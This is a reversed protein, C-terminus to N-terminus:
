QLVVTAIALDRETQLKITYIGPAYGTLDVSIKNNRTHENRAIVLSGVVNYINLSVHQDGSGNLSITFSGSTPNPYISVASNIGVGSVGQLVFQFLQSWGTCGGTNTAQVRYDGSQTATHNTSTAGAIAVGNFYWQYVPYTGSATLVNGSASIGVVPTDVTVPKCWASSGARSAIDTILHLQQAGATPFSVTDATQPAYNVTGGLAAASLPIRILTSPTSFNISVLNLTDNYWFSSLPQMQPPANLDGFDIATVTNTISSGFHLGVLNGAENIALATTNDCDKLVVIGRPLAFLGGPNGLNTIAPANNLLSPGFDYRLLLDSILDTVLMYWNGNEENLAFYCPKDAGVLNPLNTPTPANSLSNGFDLRTIHATNFSGVFGIWSGDYKKITIQMSYSLSAPFDWSTVTPAGALNTGFAARIIRAGDAIFVYWDSGDKVVDLGEPHDHLAGNLDGLNSVTPTSYPNSGFDLRLLEMNGANTVFGYYHGDDNVIMADAGVAMGPGGSLMPIADPVPQSFNLNGTSWLYTQAVVNTNVPVPAGPCVTDPAIIQANTMGSLILGISLTITKKL